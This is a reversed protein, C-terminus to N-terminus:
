PCDTDLFKFKHINNPHWIVEILERSVNNKFFQKHKQFSKNHIYKKILKLYHMRHELYIKKFYISKISYYSNISDFVYTFLMVIIKPDNYITYLHLVNIDFNRSLKGRINMSKNSFNLIKNRYALQEKDMKCRQKTKNELLIIIFM